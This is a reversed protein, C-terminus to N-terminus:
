NQADLFAGDWPAKKTQKFSTDPKQDEHVIVNARFRRPKNVIAAIVSMALLAAVFWLWQSRWTDPELEKM